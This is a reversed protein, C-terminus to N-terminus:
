MSLSLPADVPETADQEGTGDMLYSPRTQKERGEKAAIRRNLEELFQSLVLAGIKGGALLTPDPILEIFSFRRRLAADLLKISRDATNMTALVYVNPPITFAEKSQPLSILLGRKDKELLTILEGFVKAVNARNIEDILVLYPKKPNAQAARCVRKFIGDELKLSLTGNRSDVPRYGEIFDEYSYSAHFTLRTLPGVVDGGELQRRLDPERESLLAALHDFEDETLAFLTGQNRFQMPESKNLTEDKQLEDYTPGDNIKVVPELEISPEGSSNTFMERSIRALVVLRKDPTSQYGVVLDGRRVLPYNRQRRGYRYQVRKEKFLRDWSWEKPNAVIWWVRRVVQASSLKEEAQAFAKPDSLIEPSETGLQKLLWWVSFRRATFTKGTGPPGYLIVQGKRALAEAVDRYLADVPVAM